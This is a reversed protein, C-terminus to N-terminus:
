CGQGQCCCGQSQTLMRQRSPLRKVRPKQCPKSRRARIRLSLVGRALRRARPRRLRRAKTVPRILGKFVKLPPLSAQTTSPQESPPLALVTPPPFAVLVERIDEPYFINEVLRWESTAPVGAPNLAEAWVEKYYDRCVEVLEEALRVKTEEVGRNYSALESAEAVEKAM